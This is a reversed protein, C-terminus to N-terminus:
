RMHNPVNYTGIFIYIYITNNDCIKINNIVAIKVLNHIFIIFYWIGISTSSLMSLLCHDYEFNIILLYSLSPHRSPCYRFYTHRLIKFVYKDQIGNM